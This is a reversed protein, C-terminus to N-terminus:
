TYTMDKGMCSFAPRNAFTKSTATILEKLTSHTEVDVNAPIGAPYQALWPRQDTNM